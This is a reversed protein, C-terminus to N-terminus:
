IYPGLYRTGDTSFTEWDITRLSELEKTSYRSRGQITKNVTERVSGKLIISHDEQLRKAKALAGWEKYLLFAEVLYFDKWNEDGQEDFFEAARECMYAEHHVMGLRACVKIAIDYNKKSPSKEAELMSVIPYANLSGYKMEATFGKLIKMAVSLYKKRRQLNKAKRSLAFGALGVYCRRLHGRLIMVENVDIYEELADMLTEATEWHNYLVALMIRHSNIDRLTMKLANGQVKQLEKVQDMAEGCLLTPNEVTQQLNLVTQHFILIVQQVTYPSGFQQSDKGYSILDAKLAELPLGVCLYATSYSIVSMVTERALGAKLCDARGEVLHNLCSNFSRVAAFVCGTSVMKVYGHNSGLKRPIRESLLLSFDAYESAEKYHGELRMHVAMQLVALNSVQSVGHNCANKLARVSAYWSLSKYSRSFAAYSSLHDVLLTQIHLAKRDAMNPLELLGQYEGRPLLKKLKTKEVFKQGPYLRKPYKEGYLKLLKLTQEVGLDYNRDKGSVAHQLLVIHARFMDYLSNANDVIAKATEMAEETKGVRFRAEALSTLIDLTLYYSDAWRREVVMHKEANVLLDLAPYIAAKKLSLKAAQLNLKAVDNGLSANSNLKAYKNMQNAAMFIMWEEDQEIGLRWLLMGLNHHLEVRMPTPILSYEAEQLSDNSWMYAGHSMTKVLIGWKTAGELVEDLGKEQVHSAALHLKEDTGEDNVEKFFEVLLGKPIMTGLCSSVMIVVQAAISLKSMSTGLIDAVSDSVAAYRDLVNVDGWDWKDLAISYTFFDKERAYRLFQSLAFPNGSTKKHIVSSLALTEKTGANVLSAVVDNVTDVSLDKLHLYHFSSGLTKVRDITGTAFKNKEAQSSDYSLAVLVHSSVETSSATIAFMITEIVKMSSADAFHVDDLFLAIPKASSMLSLLRLFSDAVAVTDAGKIEESEQRWSKRIDSVTPAQSFHMDDTFRSIINVVDPIVNQLVDVDNELLDLLLSKMHGEEKNNEAWVEVVEVIARILASYPEISLHREFKRSVFVWNHQNWPVSHMLSTKGSGEGGEVLVCSSSKEEAIRQLLNLEDQRGHLRKLRWQPGSDDAAILPLNM